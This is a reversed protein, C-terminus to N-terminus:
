IDLRNWDLPSRAVYADISSAPLTFPLNQGESTESDKWSPTDNLYRRPLYPETALPQSWRPIGTPTSLSVTTATPATQKRPRGSEMPKLHGLYSDLPPTWTLTSPPEKQVRNKMPRQEVEALAKNLMDLEPSNRQGHISELEERARKIETLANQTNGLNFSALGRRYWAKWYQPAGLTAELADQHSNDWKAPSLASFAAARNSLLIPNNSSRALAASYHKIGIEVRGRQVLQNGQTQLFVTMSDM